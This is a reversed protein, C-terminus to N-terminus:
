LKPPCESDPKYPLPRVMGSLLKVEVVGATFFSEDPPQLRYLRGLFASVGIEARRGLESCPYAQDESPLWTSGSPSPVPNSKWM